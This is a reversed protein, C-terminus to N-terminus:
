SRLRYLCLTSLFSLGSRWTIKKGDRFNRPRYAIPVERISHGRRALKATIEACFGFGDTEIRVARLVSSRFVKYGTPVDTLRTGYLRNTLWSLLRGGLYYRLYGRRTRGLIRSGYVIDAEGREIPDLLRRYDGPDYELDADQILVIEGRASELATRIAAGKGLNRPHRLLTVGQLGALLSPTADTSGDDVVIIDKDLDTAQVRHVLELITAEENFVPIIVSVKM